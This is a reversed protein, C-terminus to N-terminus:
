RLDYAVLSARSYWTRNGGEAIEYSVIGINKVLLVSCIFYWFRVRGIRLTDSVVTSDQRRKVAAFYLVDLVQYDLNRGERETTIVHDPTEVINFFGPQESLLTTDIRVPPVYADRQIRMGTFSQKIRYRSTDASRSHSIVEWTQTGQYIISRAMAPSYDRFYFDFVWRNGVNLPFYDAGSKPLLMSPDSISSNKGCASFLILPFLFLLTHFIGTKMKALAREM